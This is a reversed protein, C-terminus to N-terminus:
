FLFEDLSIHEVQVNELILESRNLFLDGTAELNIVVDDGAQYVGVKIGDSSFPDDFCRVMGVSEIQIEVADSNLGLSELVGGLAVKDIGVQFDTIHTSGTETSFEFEDSGDGGSVLNVGGGANIKDNGNGAFITDNGSGGFIIDDGGKAHIEDNGAGGFITSAGFSSDQNGDVFYDDGDGLYATDPGLGADVYDNGSGAFILDGQGGAFIEDDGAGSEITDIGFDGIVHDPGDTGILHDAADTGVIYNTSEGPNEGDSPLPVADIVLEIVQHQQTFELEIASTSFQVMLDSIVPTEYLRSEPTEDIGAVDIIGNETMWNDSLQSTLTRASVSQIEYGLSALNLTTQSGQTADLFQDASVYIILQGDASFVFVDPTFDRTNEQEISLQSAGVLTQSMMQLLAGGVYTTEGFSVRGSHQTDIGYLTAADAGTALLSNFIELMGSAQALGYDRNILGWETAVHEGSPSVLVGTQWFREFNTNTRNEVETDTITAVIGFEELYSERFRALAETRTWSAINWESVFIETDPDLGADLWADFSNIYHAEFADADDLSWSFRHYVLADIIALGDPSIESIIEANDWESRGFQVTTNLVDALHPNAEEFAAIAELMKNAVEGYKSPNNKFDGIGYYENGLELTVKEPIPGLELNFLRQLFDTVAASAAAPDSAYDSTPIVIALDCANDACSSLVESLGAKNSNPDVLNDFELGYWPTSEAAHGGPWRIVNGSIDATFDEFRELARYGVFVGGFHSESITESSPESGQGLTLAIETNTPM